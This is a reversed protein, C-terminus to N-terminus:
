NQFLQNFPKHGKPQKIKANELLALPRINFMQFTCDNYCVQYDRPIVSDSNEYRWTIEQFKAELKSLELLFWANISSNALVAQFDRENTTVDQCWRFYFGFIMDEYQSPTMNLKQKISKM